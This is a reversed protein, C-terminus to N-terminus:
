QELNQNISLSHGVGTILQKQETFVNHIHELLLTRDGEFYDRKRYKFTLGIVKIKWTRRKEDFNIKIRGSKKYDNCIMKVKRELDGNAFEKKQENM